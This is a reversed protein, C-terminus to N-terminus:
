TIGVARMATNAMLVERFSSDEVVVLAGQMAKAEVSVAQVAKSLTNFMVAVDGVSGVAWTRVAM